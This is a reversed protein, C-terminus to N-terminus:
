AAGVCFRSSGCQTEVEPPLSAPEIPLEENARRWDLKGTETQQSLLKAALARRGMVTVRLEYAKPVLEQFIGPTQRLVQDSVLDSERLVTTYTLYTFDRSAWGGGALPKYVVERGSALFQRIEQPNNTILTEPMRLGVAAAAEHQLLKSGALAAGEVPNVWFADPALIRLLSRRFMGCEGDAFARDAPHLSDRDLVYVPRRRWVVDFAPNELDLDPGRVRLSKVGNAGYHVAEDSRTPFDSTAWLTVAAGKRDLAEAVAIAHIDNAETLILIRKAM